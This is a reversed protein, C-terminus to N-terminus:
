QEVDIISTSVSDGDNVDAKKQKDAFSAEGGSERRHHSMVITSREAVGERTNGTCLAVVAAGMSKMRFYVTTM